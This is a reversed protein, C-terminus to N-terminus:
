CIDYLDSTPIPGVKGQGPVNIMGALCEEGEMPVLDGWITGGVLQRNGDYFLVPRGDQHVTDIEIM